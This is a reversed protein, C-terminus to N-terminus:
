VQEEQLKTNIWELLEEKSVYPKVTEERVECGTIRGKDSQMIMLISHTRFGANFSEEAQLFETWRREMEAPVAPGFHRTVFPNGRRIPVYQEQEAQSTCRRLKERLWDGFEERFKMASQYSQFRQRRAAQEERSLGAGYKGLAASLLVQSSSDKELDKALERTIKFGTWHVFRSWEIQEVWEDVPTDFFTALKQLASM